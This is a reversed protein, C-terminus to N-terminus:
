EEKKINSSAYTLRDSGMEVNTSLLLIYKGRDSRAEWIHLTSVRKQGRLHGFIGLAQNNCAHTSM